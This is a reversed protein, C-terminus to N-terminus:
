SVLKLLSTVDEVGKPTRYPLFMAILFGGCAPQEYKLVFIIIM